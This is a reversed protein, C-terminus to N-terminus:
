AAPAQVISFTAGAPDSLVAMRGYPMDFAPVRVQGGAAVAREVVADTDDVTFYGMWHPPIGEWQEDMQLIGYLMDDGRQMVYYDMGDMKNATTNTLAEYFARAAKSDRTNVEFWSMGGHENEVGSGIHNNAEWLGFVAGTPDACIAMVGSDGITMPEVMVQGGLAKVREVDAAADDSALYITWASPQPSDPPWIPGIGAANRGQAMAMNYHGFDAGTDFYDWGFIQKYFAKAGDLDPTALDLWTPTGATRKTTRTTM